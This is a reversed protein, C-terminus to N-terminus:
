VSRAASERGAARRGRRESLARLAAPLEAGAGPQLLQKEWARLHGAGEACREASAALLM